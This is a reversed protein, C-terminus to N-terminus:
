SCSFPGRRKVVASSGFRALVDFNDRVDRPLANVDGVIAFPLGGPYLWRIVAKKPEFTDKDAMRRTPRPNGLVALHLWYGTNGDAVLYDVCAPDVHARAWSGALYVSEAVIPKPPPAASVHRAIFLGLLVAVAWAPRPTQALRGGIARSARRCLEGSAVSGAAALPYITLYMMKYAMYPTDAGYAKAVVFLVSAQLAIAGVLLTTARGERRSALLLLGLVAPVLFAWGFVSPSPHIAAGSTAAMRLWQLRGVTHVAGVTAIPVLGVALHMLREKFSLGNRLGVVALFVIVLPGIWIPWIIFTTAGAVGYLFMSALSPREDWVVLAWWMACAFLEAVVQAWFSDHTFSGFFYHLPLFLLLVATLALPVRSADRPLLRLAVLFVFGSKLAVTLALVPHIAQFVDVRLWSGALAFLLHSGPTYFIMDGLYPVLSPDYVLQWQRAIYHVLVMHHALDVGGGVPLLNPRAVWLLWAFITTVISGFAIMEAGNWAARRRLRSWSVGAVTLSVLLVGVPVVRSGARYVLYATLIAAALFSLVSAGVM